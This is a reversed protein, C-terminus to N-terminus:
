ERYRAAKSHTFTALVGDGNVGADIWIDRLDFSDRSNPISFSASAFPGQTASAPVALIAIVRAQNTRDDGPDTQKSMIYILGTNGPLAQVLLSQAYVPSALVGASLNKCIREPTGGATVTTKGLAEVM